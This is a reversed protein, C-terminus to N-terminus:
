VQLVDEHMLICSLGVSDQKCEPETFEMKDFLIQDEGEFMNVHGDVLIDEKLRPLDVTSEPASSTFKTQENQVHELTTAEQGKRLQYLEVPNHCSLKQCPQKLDSFKKSCTKCKGCSESSTCNYCLGCRSKRARKEFVENDILENCNVGVVSMEKNIIIKVVNRNDKDADIDDSRKSALTGCIPDWIHHENISSRSKFSEQCTSCSYKPGKCSNMHRKCDEKRSFTVTCKTCCFPKEKTHSRLHVKLQYNDRCMYDCLNCKITKKILRDQKSEHITRTHRKLNSSVSFTKNCIKCVFQDQNSAIDSQDEISSVDGSM